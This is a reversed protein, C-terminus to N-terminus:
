WAPLRMGSGSIYQFVKGRVRFVGDGSPLVGGEATIMGASDALQLAGGKAGLTLAAHPIQNGGSVAIIAGHPGSGVVWAVAEPASGNFVHLAGYGQETVGLAAGRGGSSNTVRFAPNAKDGMGMQLLTKGGARVEVSPGTSKQYVVFIEEGASNVVAFPAAVRTPAAIVPTGLRVMAVIWMLAAGLNLAARWVNLKRHTQRLQELDGRLITIDSKLQAIDNMISRM